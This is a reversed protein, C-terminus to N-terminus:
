WYYGLYFGYETTKNTEIMLRTDLHNNIRYRGEFQIVTEQSFKSNLHHRKEYLARIKFNTSLAINAFVSAKPYIAGYGHRNNQAAIGLYIGAISSDNFQKAVGLDGQFRMVLCNKCSLNQQEIGLQLKWANGDDGALGTRAGNVSEISIFNLYRLLLKNDLYSLKTSLMSLASNSVQSADSDLSDYYSPRLTLSLGNGLKDNYVYSLQSYGPERGTHPSPPEITKHTIAQQIPLSFRKSLIQNYKLQIEPSADSETSEQFKLYDQYTELIAHQSRATQQEFEISDFLNINDSASHLLARQQPTLSDYKQYLRSQRSPHYILKKIAPQGGLYSKNLNTLITQPYTWSRNRPILQLESSLELIDAMRFACNEKFFYYTYKHELLEWLHAVILSVDDKSLNLEYEWIDRLELEGYSQEHFYFEIKSFAGDYAGFVGKFIYSIPDESDPVIAGYNTTMDLLASQNPEKVNLKLLTHGYYSAPNGLYGTAFLLSISEINNGRSWEEFGTCSPKPISTEHFNLQSSLWQYRAPFRCLTHTDYHENGPLFFSKITAELEDEPSTQGLPSLFFRKSQIASTKELSTGEYHLLKLWTTHNALNLKEAQETLQIVENNASFSPIPLFLVLGLLWSSFILFSQTM